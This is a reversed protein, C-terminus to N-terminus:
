VLFSANRDYRTRLHEIRVKRTQYIEFDEVCVKVITKCQFSKERSICQFINKFIMAFIKIYFHIPFTKNYFYHSVIFANSPKSYFYPKPFIKISIQM